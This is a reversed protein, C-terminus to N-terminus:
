SHDLDRGQDVCCGDSKLGEMKFSEGMEWVNSDLERTSEMVCAKRVCRLSYVIDFCHLADGLFIM